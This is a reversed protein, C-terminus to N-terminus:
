GGGVARVVEVRDGHVLLRRALRGRPVVELNLAVAVGEVPVGLSALLTALTAGAPLERAEGNVQVTIAEAALAAPRSVMMM